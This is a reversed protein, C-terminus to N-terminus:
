RKVDRVKQREQKREDVTKISSFIFALGVVMLLGVVVIM